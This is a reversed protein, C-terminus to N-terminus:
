GDAAASAAGGSSSTSSSSNSNNQQQAEEEAAAILGSGRWGLDALMDAEHQAMEAHQVDGQEHDFGVLHLLGHVLLV